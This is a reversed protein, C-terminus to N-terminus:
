EEPNALPDEVDRGSADADLWRFTSAELLDYFPNHRL